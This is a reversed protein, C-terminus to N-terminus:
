ETATQFRSSGESQDHAILVGERFDFARRGPSTNVWLITSDLTKADVTAQYFDQGPETVTVPDGIDLDTWDQPIHDLIGEM